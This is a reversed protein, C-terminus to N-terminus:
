PVRRLLRLPSCRAYCRFAVWVRAAVSAWRLAKAMPGPRWQGCRPMGILQEEILTEVLIWDHEAADGGAALNDNQSTECSM